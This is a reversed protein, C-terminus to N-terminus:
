VLRVAKIEKQVVYGINKICVQGVVPAREKVLLAADVYKMPEPVPIEEWAMKDTGLLAYSTKPCLFIQAKGAVAAEARKLFPYAFHEVVYQTNKPGLINLGGSSDAYSIIDVDYELAKEIFRLLEEAFKDFIQQMKEPQKRLFRFVLGADMLVNLITFPGSIMLATHEGQERLYKCAKLTEAIRGKEYDIEPLALVEDPTECIYEKARPGAMANGFNVIGGMAEAELTHCFPLECFSAGEQKKIELAIKVMTDWHLYADPFTLDLKETIESSIGVANDYTCQYDLIKGM